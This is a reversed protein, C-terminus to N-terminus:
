IIRLSGLLFTHYALVCKSNKSPSSDKSRGVETVDKKLYDYLCITRQEVKQRKSWLEVYVCLDGHEDYENELQDSSFEM